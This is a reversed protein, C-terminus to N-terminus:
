APIWPGTRTTRTSIQSSPFPNKPLPKLLPLYHSVLPGLSFRFSDADSKDQNMDIWLQQEVKSQLTNRNPDHGVHSPLASDAFFAAGAVQGTKFPKLM